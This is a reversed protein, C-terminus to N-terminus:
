GGIQEAVLLWRDELGTKEDQVARLEAGLEILRTYDAASAALEAALRDEQGALRAIQRELRALEKQGARLEAPSVATGAGPGGGAPTGGAPTGAAVPAGERARIALYEDVGGPLFALKRGALALVRDTVRELFYRDHSVVVVSGPWGDLLDELETLTEIDLDNTPEDLLLVNPEALLVMLLQLRRREGGSLEGVRTWQRDGRLGLRDLLQSVSLERKGIRASGRIQEAAELVRLDPDVPTPEQTLYGVAVTSGTVVRGTTRLADHGTGAAPNPPDDGRAPVAPLDPPDDGRAPVAPLDPPDDGRAPVAPPNPPDDGRAPVAPPNPPDDGRAPVAPPNPPDDGRAPVTPVPLTGALLRLLTTKGTGNVGVVGVRDGPGLQWTVDELLTRPGAGVSVDELEIVTKGLRATALRALEVGDRPPPEDAILATAAEIRFKPKSTRAPPGRRLWALEKRLLNRRRADIAAAIRAREARALVYASYGGDYAHVQGDAVEWTRETVVDLFWRDHTVVVYSTAYERLYGALWSIAEIDLHNTPEDLLLLDYSSRLLAALATRRREGGSLRSVDAGFDLGGLLAAIVGRSRADAAWEHEPVSRFVAAGVTGSLPQEQALYGVSVDRARTARGSDLVGAGALAALLTSKGAGNRGVVGIRQGAAVGLSVRDLLVHEHYAKAAQELNVLNM